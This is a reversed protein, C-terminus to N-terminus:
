RLSPNYWTTIQQTRRPNGPIINNGKGHREQNTGTISFIIKLRLMVNCKGRGEFTELINRERGGTHVLRLTWRAPPNWVLFVIHEPLYHMRKKLRKNFGRWPPSTCQVIGTRFRVLSKTKHTLEIQCTHASVSGCPHQQLSVHLQSLNECCPRGGHNRHLINAQDM